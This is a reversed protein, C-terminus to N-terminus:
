LPLVVMTIQMMVNDPKVNWHNKKNNYLHKEYIFDERWTSMYVYLVILRVKYHIVMM